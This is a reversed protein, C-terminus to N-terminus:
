HWWILELRAIAPPEPCPCILVKIRARRTTVRDQNELTQPRTRHPASLDEPQKTTRRTQKRISDLRLLSLPDRPDACENWKLFTIALCLSLHSGEPLRELAESKIQSMPRLNILTQHTAIKAAQSRRCLLKNRPLRIDNNTAISMSSSLPVKAEFYSRSCAGLIDNLPPQTCILNQPVRPEIALGPGLMARYPPFVEHM